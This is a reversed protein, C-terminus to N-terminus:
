THQNAAPASNKFNAKGEETEPSSSLHDQEDNQTPAGAVKPSILNTTLFPLTQAVRSSPYPFDEASLIKTHSNQPKQQQQQSHLQRLITPQLCTEKKQQQKSTIL